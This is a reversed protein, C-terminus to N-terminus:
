GAWRARHSRVDTGRRDPAQKRRGFKWVDGNRPRRAPPEATGHHVPGHDCRRISTPEIPLWDGTHGARDDVTGHQEVLLCEVTEDVGGDSPAEGVVALDPGRPLAGTGNATGVPELGGEGGIGSSGFRAALLFGVDKPDERAPTERCRDRLVLDPILVAPKQGLDVERPWGPPETELVVAILEVSGAGPGAVVAADGPDFAHPPTDLFGVAAVEARGGRAEPLHKEENEELRREVGLVPGGSGGLGTAPAGQRAPGADVATLVAGGRM